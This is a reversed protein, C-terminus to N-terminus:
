IPCVSIYGGENMRIYFLYISSRNQAQYQKLRQPLATVLLSLTGARPSRVSKHPCCVIFLKCLHIYLKLFISPLFILCTISLMTSISPSSGSQIRITLSPRGPSACKLLVTFRPLSFLTWLDQPPTDKPHKILALPWLRYPRTPLSQPNREAYSPFSNSLKLPHCNVDCIKMKDPDKQSSESFLKPPLDPLLHHVRCDLSHHFTLSDWFRFIPKHCPHPIHFLSTM